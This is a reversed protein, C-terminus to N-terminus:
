LTRVKEADEPTDVCVPDFPTEATRIRFGRELVRLQELKEAQELPTPKWQSYRMLFAKRYSYIGIHKWFTTKHIRLCPDAADRLYPIPSRSFYMAYGESDLVVKATNPSELEESRVIKKVLTGVDAKPNEGLIRVVADIEDPEILPEDGQINVFIQADIDRAVFATRDTGSPIDSPTMLAEGGFGVVADLIREDDTAVLVRSLSKSLLAREAVRQIMPKGLLDTLPKGPFRSSGYRAPIVGVALPM